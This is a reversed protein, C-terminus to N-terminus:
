CGLRQALAPLAIECSSELKFQLLSDARMVGQNIAAVPKGSLAAERCFRYGSFVVLSSGVVLLADARALAAEARAARERPVGDGFFVVDPQLMGGCAACAPIHFEALADPEFQADGDPLVTVDAQALAPNQRELTDQVARRSFRTGCALCVVGHINGHLEIVDGSGAQQHLGDVNQTVVTGLRGGAQLAAIARHAANPQSGALRPYGLMSRSWYRRRVAENGRFAPGEVPAKGRRVGMRDRYDPIGSATSIGAGTLVMVNDHRALFGALTDLTAPATAPPNEPLAAPADAALNQMTQLTGTDQPIDM